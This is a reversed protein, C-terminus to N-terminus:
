LIDEVRFMTKVIGLLTCPFRFDSECAQYILPDSIQDGKDEPGKKKHLLTFM